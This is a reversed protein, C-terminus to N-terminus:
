RSALHRRLLDTDSTPQLAGPRPQLRPSLRGAAAEGLVRASSRRRARRAPERTSRRVPVAAGLPRGGPRRVGAGDRVREAIARTDDGRHGVSPERDHVAGRGAREHRELVVAVPAGRCGVVSVAAERLGRGAGRASAWWSAYQREDANGTQGVNWSQARRSAAAARGGARPPGRRASSGGCLWGIGGSSRSVMWAVPRRRRGDGGRRWCRSQAAGGGHDPSAVPGVAAGRGGRPERTRGGARRRIRPRRDSRVGRRGRARRRDSSVAGRPARAEGPAGRVAEGARVGVVRKAAGHGLRRAVLGTACAAACPPSSRRRDTTRSPDGAARATAPAAPM